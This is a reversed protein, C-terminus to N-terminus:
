LDDKDDTSDLPLGKWKADLYATIFQDIDGDM